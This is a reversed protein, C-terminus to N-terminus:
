KHNPIPEPHILSRLGVEVKGHPATLVSINEGHHGRELCDLRENVAVSEPFEKELMNLAGFAEGGKLFVGAIHFFVVYLMMVIKVISYIYIIYIV